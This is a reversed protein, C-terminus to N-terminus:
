DLELPYKGYDKITNVMAVYNEPKVGSHISNSSMCILGGRKGAKKIVDKTEQVVDEVTGSVLSFACSVNGCLCIKDGFKAKAEGMDMGAMPDIPHLGDAGADIILDYIPWINGDTHKIVPVGRSHCYEVIKRFPPILFRETFKRSVMPGQTMAWDGNVFAIDAGLDISNKLYGLQYNLAIENARDILDPNKVMSRYYQKDGLINEKAVDFIDTCGSIIARQGKFRKVLKKLWDYRWEENPDPPIYSDIEEESKVGAEMVVGTEEATYQVIAGWQGRKLQRGTKSVGIDEYSWCDVRDGVVIGDTDVFDVFDEYSANPNGTIADRVKKHVGDFTPVRDPEQLKLTTLIREIGTMKKM